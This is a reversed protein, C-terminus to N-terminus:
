FLGELLGKEKREITPTEGDTVDKGLASNERLRKAEGEANVLVGPDERDRWFVLAELFGQDDRLSDAEKNVLARIDLELNDAGAAKLLSQEGASRGQTSSVSTSALAPSLSKSQSTRFIAQRAQQTATGDQPRVAGPEPPRLTFNPPLSLPARAVVRFEDPSQKNLGFQKRVGECATLAFIASVALVLRVVGLGQM